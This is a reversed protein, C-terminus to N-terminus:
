QSPVKIRGAIIEKKLSDVVVKAEDPILAKNRDDYVWGV